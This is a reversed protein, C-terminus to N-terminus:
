WRLAHVNIKEAMMAFYPGPSVYHSQFLCLPLKSYKPLHKHTHLCIKDCGQLRCNCFKVPTYSVDFHLSMPKVAPTMGECSPKQSM